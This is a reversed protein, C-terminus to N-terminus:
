YQFNKTDKDVPALTFKRGISGDAKVVDITIIERCLVDQVKDWKILDGVDTGLFNLFKEPLALRANPHEDKTNNPSIKMYGKDKGV